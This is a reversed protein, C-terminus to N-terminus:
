REYQEPTEKDYKNRSLERAVTNSYISCVMPGLEKYLETFQNFEKERTHHLGIDLHNPFSPLGSNNEYFVIREDPEQKILENAVNKNELYHSICMINSDLIEELQILQSSLEDNSVDHKVSM